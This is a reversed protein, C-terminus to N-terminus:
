KAIFLQGKLSDPMKDDQVEEYNDLLAQFSHPDYQFHKISEEDWFKFNEKDVYLYKYRKARLSDGRTDWYEKVNSPVTYIDMGPIASSRIVQMYMNSYYMITEGECHQSLYESVMRNEHITPVLKHPIDRILVQGINVISTVSIFIGLLGIAVKAYSLKIQEFIYNVALAAFPLLCAMGVEYNGANGGTKWGGVIQAGGFIISIFLWKKMISNLKIRGTYLLFMCYISSVFFIKNARFDNGMSWFINKLFHYPMDKLNTITIIEIDPISFIIGLAVCGAAFLATIIKGKTKWSGTLYFITYIILGTNVYVAQQKTIDMLLGLIFIGALEYLQRSYKKVEIRELLYCIGIGCLLVLSDAKFERMYGRYSGFGLYLLLFIIFLATQKKCGFDVALRVLMIVFVTGVLSAIFLMIYDRYPQAFLSVLISIFSVGPFYPSSAEITSYYLGQGALFRDAIAIQQYLDWGGGVILAPIYHKFFYGLAVLCVLYKYKCELFNNIKEVM